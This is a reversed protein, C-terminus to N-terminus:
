IGISSRRHPVYAERLGAGELLHKHHFLIWPLKHSIYICIFGYKILITLYMGFMKYSTHTFEPVIFRFIIINRYHSKLYTEVILIM